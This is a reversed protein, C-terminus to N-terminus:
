DSARSRAAIDAFVCAFLLRALCDAIAEPLFRPRPSTGAGARLAPALRDLSVVLVEDEVHHVGRARVVCLGSRSPVSM